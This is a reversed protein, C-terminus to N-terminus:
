KKGVLALSTKHSGQKTPWPLTGLPLAQVDPNERSIRKLARFPGSIINGDPFLARADPYYDHLLIIGNPALISLATSVEKYVAVASHDGDLFIFDYKRDTSRMFDLCPATRFDIHEHCGLKEAFSRPSCSLGMKKWSGYESHNVDYIDVSTVIGNKDSRKLAMAIHLTSAGIHTGVELVTKPMLRSILYYLTRRDGPNVGEITDENGYLNIIAAHDFEWKKKIAPDSFIHDTSIAGAPRLNKTYCPKAPVTNLCLKQYTEWATVWAFTPVIKKVIKKM